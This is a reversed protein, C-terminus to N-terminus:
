AVCARSRMTPVKASRRLISAGSAYCDQVLEYLLDEKTSLYYVSGRHLCSFLRAAVRFVEERRRFTGSETVADTV